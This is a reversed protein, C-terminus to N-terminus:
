GVVTQAMIQDAIQAMTQYEIQALSTSKISAARLDTDRYVAHVSTQFSIRWKINSIRPPGPPILHESIRWTILSRASLLLM